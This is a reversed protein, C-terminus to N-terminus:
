LMDRVSKRDFIMRKIVKKLLVAQHYFFSCFSIQGNKM